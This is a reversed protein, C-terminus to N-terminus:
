HEDICTTQGGEAAPLANLVNPVMGHAPMVWPFGMNPIRRHPPTELTRSPISRDKVVEASARRAGDDCRAQHLWAHTTRDPLGHAIV